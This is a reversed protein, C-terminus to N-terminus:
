VNVPILTVRFNVTIEIFYVDGIRDNICRICNDVTFATPQCTNASQLNLYIARGSAVNETDRPNNLQSLCVYVKNPATPGKDGM